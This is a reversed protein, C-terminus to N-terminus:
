EDWPPAAASKKELHNIVEELRELSFPFFLCHANGTEAGVVLVDVHRWASRVTTVQFSATMQEGRQFNQIFDGNGMDDLSAFPLKGHLDRPRADIVKLVDALGTFSQFGDPGAVDTVFVGDPTQVVCVDWTTCLRDPRCKLQVHQLWLGCGSQQHLL